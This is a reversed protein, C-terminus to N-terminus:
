SSARENDGSAVLADLRRHREPKRRIAGGFLEDPRLEHGCGACSLAMLSRIERGCAPCASIVEGGCDPCTQPMTARNGTMFRRGWGCRLCFGCCDGLERSRDHEM